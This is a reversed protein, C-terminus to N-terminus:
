LSYYYKKIKAAMMKRRKELFEGYSTHDMKLAERPVCNTELNEYFKNIDNILGIQTTGNQCRAEAEQLYVYPAKKGISINVPRDLYVFNAEQNYRSKDYHNDILYQKPFIHHVDGGLAILERVPVNNSLFSIDNFFIQAALFVLYTPNNTSTYSLDQVLAVNWFNDSLQADEIEKLIKVVGSERIRRIDRAFASEPSSSYRGTLVSLVYWKQVFRKIDEVPVEKSEKLLLYITYAFDLAMNSNVLKSSIFGASKIAIMFQKFNFENIVNMVGETFDTYTQEVIEEKFERTEFNRGSLMSVLNSLKARKLKHMFAVRIVDDCEPDYVTETDDRLWKLKQLYPTTSFAMDHTAIYDYYSPVVALHSFYDIVKRLTNGGHVEDAAIKSMVFDGQSLATGKSNIRIFIDTVVDIELNESLEIIGIMRNSIGKVKSIIKELEEPQIEPNDECYKPIFRFSSYTPTFLEAIDPIWRKSKRIAPTAVAFIEADPEGSLAAMPDFAIRIREEKYDSNFVTRGAIATMLATIRQQGDILVKKGSSITGDKLKVNPNKWLIIYGTPYGKYLSDILDRVQTKKWVFPRQIEPIAIDNAEILGLIASISLPYNSYKENEM